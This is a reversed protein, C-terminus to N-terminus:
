DLTGLLRQVKCATIYVVVFTFHFLNPTNKRSAYESHNSNIEAFTKSHIAKKLGSTNYTCCFQRIMQYVVRCCIENIDFLHEVAALRTATEPFVLSVRTRM